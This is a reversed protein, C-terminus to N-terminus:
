IYFVLKKKWKKVGGDITSGFEENSSDSNEELEGRMEPPMELMRRIRAEEEDEEEDSAGEIDGEEVVEEALSGM